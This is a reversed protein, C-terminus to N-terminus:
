QMKFYLRDLHVGATTSPPTARSLLLGHINARLGSLATGRSYGMVYFRYKKKAVCGCAMYISM